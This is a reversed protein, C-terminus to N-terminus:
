FFKDQVKVVRRSHFTASSAIAARNSDGDETLRVDM